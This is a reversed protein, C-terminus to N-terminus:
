PYVLDYLRVEVIFAQQKKDQFSHRYIYLSGDTYFGYGLPYRIRAYPAKDKISILELTGGGNVSWYTVFLYPGVQGLDYVVGNKQISSQKYSATIPESTEFTRVRRGKLQHLTSDYQFTYLLHGEADRGFLINGPIPPSLSFATEVPTGLPTCRLLSFDGSITSGFVWLDKGSAYLNLIQRIGPIYSTGRYQFSGDEFDFRTIRNGQDAFWFASGSATFLSLRSLQGEEQGRIFYYYKKQSMKGKDFFVLANLDPSVFVHHGQFLGKYELDPHDEGSPLPHITLFPTIDPQYLAGKKGGGFSPSHVTLLLAILLALPLAKNKWPFIM